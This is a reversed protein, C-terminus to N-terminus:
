YIFPLQIFKINENSILSNKQDETVDNSYKQYKVSILSKCAILAPIYRSYLKYLRIHQLNKLKTFLEAIKDQEEHDYNSVTIYLNKITSNEPIELKQDDPFYVNVNLTHLKPFETLIFSIGKPFFLLPCKIVKLTTQHHKLFDTIDTLHNSSRSELCELRFKCDKSQINKLVVIQDLKLSKLNRMNKIAEQLIKIYNKDIGSCFIDLKTVNPCTAIFGNSCFYNTNKRNYNSNDFKIEKLKPLECIRQFDHSTQLKVLSKSFTKLIKRIKAEDGVEQICCGQYNINLNQYRRDSNLLANLDSKFPQNSRITVRQMCKNSQGFMQYWSKCVLSGNCIDKSTLYSAVENFIDEPLASLLDM